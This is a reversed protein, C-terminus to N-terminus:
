RLRGLWRAAVTGPDVRREAMAALDDELERGGRALAEEVQGALLDSLAARLAKGARARALRAALGSSALHLRHASLAAYLEPVGKGEAAVATLVPPTWGEKGPLDGMALMSSIDAAARDAGPLDAKNVLYIDAIELVGAKIAQIGDGMGPLTVFVCSHAHEAVEVEDQGVGVTELLLLDYGAADFLTLLPPVSRSLGGRHGRTALSRIFVGPDGAHEMMRVRDGLVAGGSFPSTPDVALVATKRGERRAEAILRSVLTSKGAGPPGTVGVVHARGARPYLRRYVEAVAAPDNDDLLRALRSLALLDGALAAELLRDLPATM